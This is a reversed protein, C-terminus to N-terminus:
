IDCLIRSDVVISLLSICTDQKPVRVQERRLKRPVRLGELSCFCQSSMSMHKLVYVLGITSLEGSRWM